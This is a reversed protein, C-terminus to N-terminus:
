VRVGLSSVVRGLTHRLRPLYPLHPLHVPYNLQEAEIGKPGKIGREM